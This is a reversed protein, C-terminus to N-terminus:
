GDVREYETFREGEMTGLQFEGDTWVLVATEGNDRQFSGFEEFDTSPEQAPYELGRMQRETPFVSYAEQVGAVINEQRIAVQTLNSFCAVASAGSFLVAALGFGMVFPVLKEGNPRSNVYRRVAVCLPVFFLIAVGLLVWGVTFDATVPVFEM